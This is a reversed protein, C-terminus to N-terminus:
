AAGVVVPNRKFSDVFAGRQEVPLAFVTSFYDNIEARVELPLDEFPLNNAVGATVGKEESLYIYDKAYYRFRLPFDTCHVTVLAALGPEIVYTKM